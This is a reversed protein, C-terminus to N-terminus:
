ELTKREEELNRNIALKDSFKEPYRVELKTINIKRIEDGNLQYVQEFMELAYFINYAVELESAKDIEKNYALYKKIIDVLDSVSTILLEFCEDEPLGNGEIGLPPAINRINCYNTIYWYIDGLEEKLNPLDIKAKLETGVCQVLEGLESALGLAMHALNLKVGVEDSCVREFVGEANQKFALDPLTRVTKTAYEINNM